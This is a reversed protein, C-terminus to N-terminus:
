HTAHDFNDRRPEGSIGNSRRGIGGGGWYNLFVKMSRGMTEAAVPYFAHRNELARYKENKRRISYNEAASGAKVSTATLYTPAFIDAMRPM